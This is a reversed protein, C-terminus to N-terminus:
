EGSQSDDYAHDSLCFNPKLDKNKNKSLVSCDHENEEESLHENDLIKLISNSEKSLSCLPYNGM